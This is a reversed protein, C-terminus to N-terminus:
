LYRRVENKLLSGEACRFCTALFVADADVLGEVLARARAFMLKLGASQVDFGTIEATEGIYELPVDPFIIKANVMEAAKEIEHQIGSYETGCSIQAIKIM